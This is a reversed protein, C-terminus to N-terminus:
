RRTPAVSVATALIVDKKSTSVNTFIVFPKGGEPYHWFGVGHGPHRTGGGQSATITGDYIWSSNARIWTRNLRTNGVITGSSGSVQIRYILQGSKITIYTGDFQVNGVGLTRNLSIPTFTNQGKVLEKFAFTNNKTLGDVFLNGASDYGDYSFTMMTPDSYKTPKGKPNKYLFVTGKGNNQGALALNGTTPDVACGISDAHYGMFITSVLNTQGFHYQRVDSGNDMFVDGNTPSSCPFGLYGQPYLTGVSGYGSYNLMVTADSTSVYLLAKYSGSAKRAQQAPQPLTSTVNSAGGGCGGLIAAALAITLARRVLASITM